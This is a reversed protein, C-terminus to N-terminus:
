DETTSQVIQYATDGSKWATTTADELSMCFGYEANATATGAAETVVDSGFVGPEGKAMGTGDNRLFVIAGECAVLVEKPATDSATVSTFTDHQCAIGLIHADNASSSVVGFASWSVPDGPLITAGTELPFVRVPGIVPGTGLALGDGEGTILDTVFINDVYVKESSGTGRNNYFRFGDVNSREESSIDICVLQYIDVTTTPVNLLTGWVGGNRIQVQLEGATRAGTDDEIYMCLWNFDNWNENNPRHGADLTVCTGKTTSVDVLEIANSGVRIKTTENVANFHSANEIDWDSVDECNSILHITSGQSAWRVKELFTPGFGEQAERSLSNFITDSHRHGAGSAM